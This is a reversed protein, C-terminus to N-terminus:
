GLSQWAVAMPQVGLEFVIDRAALGIIATFTPYAIELESLQEVWMDATMATAALEVIELAQEGVVHVGLIRHTDRSVIM